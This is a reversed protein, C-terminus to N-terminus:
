NKHVRIHDILSDVIIRSSLISAGCGNIWPLKTYNAKINFNKDCVNNIIVMWPYRVKADQGGIIYPM